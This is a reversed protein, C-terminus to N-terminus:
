SQHITQRLSYRQENNKHKLTEVFICFIKRLEVCFLFYKVYFGNRVKRLQVEQKSFSM